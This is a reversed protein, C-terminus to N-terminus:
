ISLLPSTSSSISPSYDFKLSKNGNKCIGKEFFVSKLNLEYTEVFKLAEKTSERIAAVKRRQQREGVENLQERSNDSPQNSKLKELERERELLMNRFPCTLLFKYMIIHDILFVTIINSM